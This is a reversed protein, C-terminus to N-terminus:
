CLSCNTCKIGEGRLRKETMMRLRDRLPEVTIKDIVDAVFALMLLMRAEDKGIGRAQMYFLATEDLQGTTAGHGCKVDDAYIELQPKAHMKATNTLCLNRNTQYAETQKTGDGVIIRGSFAGEAEEDLIYKFLEKCNCYSANHNIETYNETKQQRDNLVMGGLWLNAHEGDLDVVTHRHTIGNSLTLQNLLMESGESQTVFLQSHSITTESTSELEYLELRANRGVVVETVTDHFVKSGRRNHDCLLLKAQANDEVYILNHAVTMLEINADLMRVIQLPQELCANKKVLVFFGNQALMNNFHTMADAHKSALSNFCNEVEEPYRECAEKLSCVVVGEPLADSIARMQDNVMAVVVSNIGPVSCHFLEKDSVKSEIQNLNLGYDTALYKLTPCYLYAEDKQTPFGTIRFAEAAADRIVNLCPASHGKIMERNDNYVDIYQQKM